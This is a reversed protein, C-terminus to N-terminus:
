AVRNMGVRIAYVASFNVTEASNGIAPRLLDEPGAERQSNAWSVEDLRWAVSAVALRTRARSISLPETLPIAARSVCRVGLRPQKASTLLVSGGIQNVGAGGLPLGSQMASQRAM